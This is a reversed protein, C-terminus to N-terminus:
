LNFVFKRSKEEEQEVQLNPVSRTNISRRTMPTTTSQQKNQDISPSTEHQNSNEL